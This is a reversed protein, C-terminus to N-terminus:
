KRIDPFGDYGGNPSDVMPHEIDAEPVHYREVWTRFYFPELSVGNEAKCARVCGGCGICKRIDIAMAWWHDYMSYGPASEPTGAMVYKLSKAAAATAILIKGGEIMFQRRDNKM